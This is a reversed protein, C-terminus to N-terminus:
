VGPLVRERCSARGIEPVGLSLHDGLVLFGLGGGVRAGPFAAAAVQRFAPGAPPDKVAAAVIGFASKGHVLRGLFHGAGLALVGPQHFFALFDEAGPVFAAKLRGGRSSLSPKRNGTKPKRYFGGEM